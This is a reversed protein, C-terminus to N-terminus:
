AQKKVNAIGMKYAKFRKGDHEVWKDCIIHGDRRLESVRTALKMTGCANLADLGTCWGRKLRKIISQRQNLM